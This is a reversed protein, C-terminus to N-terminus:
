PLLVRAFEIPVGFNSGDFDPTIAFNVGIVTGDPGFVPGGSGGSTTEADYVLRRETVDNLAGQTIVPFIANREALQTILSETDTARNLVENVLDPEARALLANLGTPYGLVIVREGRVADFGGTHLPLIPVDDVSVQLIATDVEDAGLRITAPDVTIPQKGPFSVTLLVFEPILGQALLPAVTENNWWPEAVHRNTIVHGTAAALFGSGIYELQLAGGNSDVVQVLEDDHSYKLTYIGHILCVGRSYVELVKKLAKNRKVLRDVVLARRMLDARLEEVEARSIQGAQEHRFEAMQERLGALEQEYVENLRRRSSEQELAIQRGGLSAGLFAVVAVLVLLILLFAAQVKRSSHTLLDHRLTQTGAVLGSERRVERADSLTQNFPKCPRGPQTCVRYRLRPGGVGLELLDGNKLIVDRVEQGNVFVKGDNAKLAFANSEIALDLGVHREAVQQGPPFHVDAEPVTGLLLNKKAYTVTRGRYPGSLHLLQARV